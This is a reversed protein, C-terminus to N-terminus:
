KRGEGAERHAYRGLYRRYLDCVLEFKRGRRVLIGAATLRYLAESDTLDPSTLSEVLADWVPRLQSVSVLIRKLHDGFPGDDKDANALLAAITSRGSAVVDLARRTLFPQGGVLGYLLEVDQRQKIPSGYRENLDITNELSFMPMDIRCGVNFPSQNLDKIFLHVETAYGIVLTLRAWPGGFETARANHWSRVLGYFDSAFPASFLRDAEDMFWVLPRESSELLERVFGDMNMTPSFGELWESDFDFEFGLQRCLTTALVRYFSEESELQHSSLWQFDTTACRWGQQDVLKIGRGILSTKGIQRPGKVLVISEQDNLAEEFDSDVSRRVYFKSEESTARGVTDLHDTETESQGGALTSRVEDVVRETDASGTWVAQRLNRQLAALPGDPKPAEHVWIPLIHPRGRKRREDVAIDLQYQLLEDKASQDSVIAVVADAARIRAEITKAWAVGRAGKPDRSTEHGDRNLVSELVNVAEGARGRSELAGELSDDTELIVLRQPPIQVPDVMSEGKAVGETLSESGQLGKLYATFEYTVLIQGPRGADLLRRVEEIGEGAVGGEGRRGGASEVLGSHLAIRVPMSPLEQLMEWLELVCPVPATSENSFLLYIGAESPHVAVEGSTKAETFAECSELLETLISLSLDLDRPSNTVAGVIEIAAIRCTSLTATM